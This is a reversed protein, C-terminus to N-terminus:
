KLQHSNAALLKKNQKTTTTKKVALGVKVQFSEKKLFQKAL